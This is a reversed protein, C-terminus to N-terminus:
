EYRLTDAPNSNAAKISNYCLTIFIIIITVIIVKIFPLVGINVKYAFNNIWKQSFFIATPIAIINAIGILLLFDITILKLIKPISSGFVKRIGIEKTRQKVLFMSFGFLGMCAILITLITSIRLVYGFNNESTYVSAVENSAYSYKFPGEPGTNEWCTQIFSIIESDIQSKTRIAFETDYLMIEYNPNFVKICVPPIKEHLSGINFDDVVGIIKYAELEGNGSLQNISKDIPNTLGLENVATENLIVAKIDAINDESFYRGKNLRFDITETFNWDGQIISIDIEKDPNEPNIFKSSLYSETLFGDVGVSVSKINPNDELEKIFGNHGKISSYPLKELFLLNETNYGFDNKKIFNLQKYIIDSLLFLIIFIVLQLTILIRRFIIKSSKIRKRLINDPKFGSIYISLYAGSLIGVLLTIIIMGILFKGNESYNISLSKNLVKNMVPLLLEAMMVAFPLSILSSFVSEGMIQKVISRKNAGVVKRIGIEITRFSSIATSLIVTNICATILILIGIFGLIYVNGIKGIAKNYYSIHSSHFYLNKLNQITYKFKSSSQFKVYDLLKEMKKELIIPDSKEEILLFTEFGSINSEENNIVQDINGIFDAQISSNNPFDKIVATIQFTNEGISNKIILSEGIPNNDGFYNKATNETIVLDYPNTLIKDTNGAIVKWSFIDFFNKDTLIFSPEQIYENDRKVKQGGWVTKMNAIRTFNKVEPFDTKSNPGVFDNAIGYFFGETDYNYWTNVRYINDAEKHFRDFSTENLIYLLILFSCALAIALGSINIFSYVKNKILNRLSLKINHKLM